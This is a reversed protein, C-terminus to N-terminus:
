GVLATYMRRCSYTREDADVSWGGVTTAHFSLLIYFHCECSYWYAWTSPNRYADNADLGMSDALSYVEPDIINSGLYLRVLQHILVSQQNLQLATGVYGATIKGKYPCFARAPSSPLAWFSPCLGILNLTGPQKFARLRPENYCVQRAAWTAASHPQLCMFVPRDEVISPYPALSGEIRDNNYMKKYIDHIPLWKETHWLYSFGYRSRKGKKTERMVRFLNNHMTDLLSSVQDALGGPEGADCETITYNWKQALDQSLIDRGTRNLALDGPNGTPNFSQDPPAQALSNNLQPAKELQSSDLLAGNKALSDFYPTNWASLSANLTKGLAHGLVNQIAQIDMAGIDITDEGVVQTIM